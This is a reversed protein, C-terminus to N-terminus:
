GLGGGQSARAAAENEGTTGLGPAPTNDFLATVLPRELFKKKLRPERVTNMLAVAYDVARQRAAPAQPSAARKLADACLVRIELGYECGQLNEVAGLATTALLTASHVEGADVRAAAEIAFAYFHYAVLAQHEAARRAELASGVAAKSERRLRSLAASVVSAHTIDYANNTATAMEKAQVLFAEAEDNRGLELFVEASVILTDAHGDQDGYREHTQRARELYALAREQDGLRAYSHGINTLTKALQFRGGISLDIQISELAVAIADEYRGQVFMAYALANKARAEQRRAGARRFVAIAEVYADVAERVRGVRRLLVGRSRLVEARVRLPVNLNVKPNCAALARDCAALAGQVDGLERLLESVMSEAEIELQAVQATHALGAAHKAVPLGKALRGEDLHFRATRLLALCSARASPTARVTARLSTLHKVRERRRGLTRFINELAEHIELRHADERPLHSLARQYYRIALQTQYGNRAANAAELYFGAARAGAEGRALHRAVIAASLGRALSTQALLEGLARHMRVRERPDLAAYAVDRTLPHRFDLVDGKRDCLGRASLRAIIDEDRVDRSESLKGLDHVSLPGGAIALWDTIAKEQAPLEAIRDALLQELTSPLEHVDQDTRRVLADNQIELTGRELLADVMELLYFPNGGVRPLLEACIARVGERVGLRTEVLQIQEDTSLGALEIRVKGELIGALRDDARTVFVFVIPFPDAGRSLETFVDLSPKDSWHLGEVVVVLPQVLALACLLQRVGNVIIKRQYHADEEDRQGVQRNTALEALRAVTPNSADGQASGGGARAIRDCVEEFPEEGTAGIADRVLEALASFPVEQRVPSCEVRVLRANPPLESLFTAVLATKGIGLEGSVARCTVTGAGGTASVSAHYAAHLEAKETDRGVLDNPAAALDKEERTLSRELEYIRINPPLNTVNADERLELTPADGWRFERRVLRYVGGAVWTKGLPTTMGLVDALYSVPDHLIYRVLNGEPDRTGSAIGRVISIAAALPVPLDDVMGALAEHTDLALWAADGAARSPKSTLGAIARAEKDSTWVWRMGRKYAMEGLMSRLGELARVLRHAQDGLDELAQLRLTVVAVHRVERPEARRTQPPQSPRRSPEVGDTQALGDPRGTNSRAIPAAAQTQAGHSGDAGPPPVPTHAKRARREILEQLEAEVASADILEQKALLLRAVTAAFERATQFRDARDPALLKMVMTELEEPLSPVYTSPPEVKGSRVIDLLAEGGLGGHLPRGTLCEWLIVGLSYLDSRRDVKEGRAQEPSMYGFKGKLVGVEEQFLRASAVGFDAIKVIGEFSLLVNQPSVDRHVIELPQGRDDRKEHAYHLGKAAEAIIWAAIWPPIRTGREKAKSMLRGLDCGEVYEMALIHGDDAADFFEYVQVINPHNLRTALQAEEIFMTKFRRSTGFGPLIRKVVLLKSTGEAGPKHALFVEAMGGMGLREEIIFDGIKAPIPSPSKDM